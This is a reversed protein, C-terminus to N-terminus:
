YGGPAQAPFAAYLATEVDTSRVVLGFPSANTDKFRDLIGLRNGAGTAAETADSV